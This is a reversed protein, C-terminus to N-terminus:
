PKRHMRSVGALGIIVLTFSAPEPISGETIAEIANIDIIGTFNGLSVRLAGSAYSDDWIHGGHSLFDVFGSGDLVFLESGTAYYTGGASDYMQSISFIIRDGPEFERESNAVEQVMLADVNIGDVGCGDARNCATTPPLGGLLTSVATVITPHDIYPLSGGAPDLMFVSIPPPGPITPAGAAIDIELSYKDADAALAPEPGWVEVGDVDVPTPMGNIETAFAWLGQVEFGSTAAEEISLEGAGGITDGNTLSVPGTSPVVTAFTSVNPDYIENDHSFILHAIDDILPTFLFDARNAIADVQQGDPFGPRLGGYNLGDLAGGMGDWAIVQEPSPVGGDGATSQDM